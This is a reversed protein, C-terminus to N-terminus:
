TAVVRGRSGLGAIVHLRDHYLITAQLDDDLDDTATAM